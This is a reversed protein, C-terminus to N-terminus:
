PPNEYSRFNRALHSLKKASFPLGANEDIYRNLSSSSINIWKNESKYKFLRKGPIKKLKRILFALIKNTFVLEHKKSSKGVFSFTVTNKVVSVHRKELTTLGYTENSKAYIKNGIRISTLDMAWVAAAHIQESTFSERNATDQKYVRRFHSM